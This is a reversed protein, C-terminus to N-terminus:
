VNQSQATTVLYALKEAISGANSGSRVKLGAEAHFLAAAALQLASANNQAALDLAGLGTAFGALVDGLGGRATWSATEGLQWAKGFPDAIVTHAGKLLVAAGSISSAKLASDVPLLQDLDPFLRQFESQHPTIWTPGIRKKLWKWGKSSTALMNLGDADLVLLGKFDALQESFIKDPAKRLGLGPGILISDFRSLNIRNLFNCISQSEDEREDILGSLVIEPLSDVLISYVKEPLAAHIIGVGSALIGKLSLIAAGRYNHSGAIILSRGRQYKNSNFPPKPFSYTNIDKSTLRLLKINSSKDLLDQPIGIEIRKLHGVNALAKDQILGRKYLGVTLTTCAYAAGGQFSNGSDSCVGAPVDLSVLKGSNFKERSLLISGLDVPLPRKQGLGFLAEIWLNNESPDPPNTIEQIGLWRAYCLQNFTIEKKIELPCWIKVEVGSLYLERAVVLGDGGNHGPGVLVLVGNALLYSHKLFWNAMNLGVKEMVSSIPMGHDFIKQEVAAMTKATVILHESDPLPWTM